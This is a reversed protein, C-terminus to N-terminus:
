LKYHSVIGRCNNKDRKKELKQLVLDKGKKSKVVYEYTVGGIIIVAGLAIGFTAGFVTAATGMLKISVSTMFLMKGINIMAGSM